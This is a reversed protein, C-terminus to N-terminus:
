IKSESKINSNAHLAQTTSLVQDVRGLVAHSELIFYTENNGNKVKNENIRERTGRQKPNCWPSFIKKTQMFKYIFVNGIKLSVRERYTIAAIGLSDSNLPEM